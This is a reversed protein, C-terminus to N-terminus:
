KPIAEALADADSSDVELLKVNAAASSPLLEYKKAFAAAAEAEEADSV